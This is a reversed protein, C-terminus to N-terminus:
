PESEDWSAMSRLRVRYSILRSIMLRSSTRIFPFWVATALFSPILLVVNHLYAFSYCVTPNRSLRLVYGSVPPMPQCVARGPPKGGTRGKEPWRRPVRRIPGPQIESPTWARSGCM